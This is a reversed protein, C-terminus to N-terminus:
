CQVTLYLVHKGDSLGSGTGFNFRDKPFIESSDYIEVDKDIKIRSGIPTPEIAPKVIKSLLIENEGNYSVDVSLIKSGFPLTYVKNLVPLRPKGPNLLYSNDENLLVTVFENEDEIVPKSINMAENINKVNFQSLEPAALAGITSLLFIGLIFISLIKKM